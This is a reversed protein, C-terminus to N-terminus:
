LKKEILDQLAANRLSLEAFMKKLKSNEEELEKIKKLESLQMGGFKAKWKYFTGQSIGYKRTIETTTVGAEHEKLIGFIQTETFKSKKM